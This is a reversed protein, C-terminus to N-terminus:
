TLSWTAQIVPHGYDPEGPPWGGTRVLLNDVPRYEGRGHTHGCLVTIKTLPQQRAYELLVEGVAICTFWPLWDPESQRGNYWCADAFPPVHTLVLLEPSPALRGLQEQLAGAELAGLSRLTDIRQQSIQGQLEGILRWDSLTVRSRLNGCRADGWGDIGVLSTADTLQIPGVSPLWRTTERVRRRTEAITSGYFDHNGLVFFMPAVQALRDLLGVLDSSEATDGTILLIDPAEQKVAAIFRGLHDEELFNLHLDTLWTARVRPPAYRV